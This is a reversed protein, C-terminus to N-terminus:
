ERPLRETINNLLDKMLLENAKNASDLGQTLVDIVHGQEEVRQALANHAKIVQKVNRDIDILAQYPDWDSHFPQM